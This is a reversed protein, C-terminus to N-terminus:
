NASSGALRWDAPAPALSDLGDAGDGNAATPSASQRAADATRWCRRGSAMRTGAKRTAEVERARLVRRGAGDAIASPPHRRSHAHRWRRRRRRAHGDLRTAGGRPSRALRRRPCTRSTRRRRCRPLAAADVVVLAASQAMSRSEDRRSRRRAAADRLNAAGGRRPRGGPLWRATRPTHAAHEVGVGGRRDRETRRWCERRGRRRGRRQGQRRRWEGGDRRGQRHPSASATMTSVGRTSALQLPTLQHMAM